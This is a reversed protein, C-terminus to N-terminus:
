VHLLGLVIGSAPKYNRDNLFHGAIFKSCKAVTIAKHSSYRKKPESLVAVELNVNHGIKQM